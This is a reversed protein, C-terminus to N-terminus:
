SYSSYNDFSHFCIFIIGGGNYLIEFPAGFWLIPNLYHTPSFTYEMNQLSTFDIMRIAIQYGVTVLITLLIQIANIINRLLEGDFFRLVLLYIFATVLFIILDMLLIELLFIPIVFIDNSMVMAILTPGAIFANLRFM